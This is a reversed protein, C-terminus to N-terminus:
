SNNYIIHLCPNPTSNGLTGEFGGIDVHHGDKDPKNPKILSLRKKSFRRKLSRRRKVKKQASAPPSPMCTIVDESTVETPLDKSTESPGDQKEDGEEASKWSFFGVISKWFSPKKNKKSKRTEKKPEEPFTELENTSPEVASFLGKDIDKLGELLHLSPDSSHRRQKKTVWKEKKRYRREEVSGDNVSLSRKVYVELLRVTDKHPVFIVQSPNLRQDNPQLDM